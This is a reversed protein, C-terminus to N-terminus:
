WRVAVSIVERPFRFGAFVSATGPATVPGTEQRGRDALAVTGALVLGGHGGGRDRVPEARLQQSSGPPDDDLGAGRKEFAVVLTWDTMAGEIILYDCILVGRGPPCPM